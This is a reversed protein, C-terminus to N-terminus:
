AKMATTVRVTKRAIPGAEGPGGAGISQSAANPAVNRPATMPANVIAVTMTRDPPAGCYWFSGSIIWNPPRTASALM